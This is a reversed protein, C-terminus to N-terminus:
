DSDSEAIDADAHITIRANTKQDELRKVYRRHCSGTIVDKLLEANPKWNSCTAGAGSRTIAQKALLRNKVSEEKLSNTSRNKVHNILSFIREVSASSHPLITLNTMFESLLGYKPKDFGDRVNRLTYWYEPITKATNILDKALRFSRWEDDLENLQNEPILTPFSLALHCISAPSVTINKAVEPDLVKFSAIVSDDNLPFRKRIQVCLEVLFNVCDTKFRNTYAPDHLPEKALHAMARGGLYVSDIPKHVSKDTPDIESLSHALILEEKVFCSLIDRYETSIRSHLVHLRFGESQFETNLTNVKHLIYQLFLLMHKTGRNMLNDFIKKAGDVKDTKTESQFYLTLADWQELIISIVNERSLWRTQSLKPIKHQPSNSADQILKFDNLRKSSRAFYSTLDKLFAELFSPLVKVAHSSCLAFSHCVCGMVFISPIDSKILTQFGSKVGMMTSCNDSGFGVINGLPVNKEKLRSKLADYLGEATGNEVSVTDFLVDVVDLKQLDFFRVVIALIQTVSIDTSEDILVSFMQNQCITSIDQKAHYAIGDQILYSVKTKKMSVKQAINSDPFAKQCVEFLHDAHAFPVHHEAFYGAFLVEANAVKEDVSSEKVRIFKDLKVNSKSEQFSNKHKITNKHALLMSKNANKLCINCCICYSNGNSTDERLWDKLEKDQLWEQKFHQSYWKKKAPPSNM